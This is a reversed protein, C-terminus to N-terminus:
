VFQLRKKQKVCEDLYYNMLTQYPIGTEESLAKFYDLTSVSVNMTIPKKNSKVYPNKRPNLSKIDYEERM